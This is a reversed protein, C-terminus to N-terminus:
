ACSIEGALMQTRKGKITHICGAVESGINKVPYKCFDLLNGCWCHCQAYKTKAVIKDLYVTISNELKMLCSYEHAHQMESGLLIQVHM